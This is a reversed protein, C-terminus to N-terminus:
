FKYAYDDYSKGKRLINGIITPYVGFDLAASKITSFEKILNNRKYFVKVNIGRAKLYMKLRTKKIVKPIINTYLKPINNKNGRKGNNLNLSFSM